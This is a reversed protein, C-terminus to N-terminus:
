LAVRGITRMRNEIAMRDLMELSLSVFLQARIIQRL